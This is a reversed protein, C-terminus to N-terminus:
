KKTYLMTRECIVPAIDDGSMAHEEHLMMRKCLMGEHVIVGKHLLMGKHLLIGKCIIIRM